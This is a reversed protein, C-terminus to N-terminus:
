YHCDLKDIEESALDFINEKVAERCKELNEGRAYVCSGQQAYGFYEKALNCTEVYEQKDDIGQMSDRLLLATYYAIYLGRYSINFSHKNFDFDRSPYFKDVFETGLSILEERPIGIDVYDKHFRLIDFYAAMHKERKSALTKTCKSFEYDCPFDKNFNIVKMNLRYNEWLKEELGEIGPGINSFFDIDELVPDKKSSYYDTIWSVLHGKFYVGEYNELFSESYDLAKHFLHKNGISEKENWRATVFCMYAQLFDRMESFENKDLDDFSKRFGQSFILKQFESLYADSISSHAELVSELDKEMTDLPATLVHDLGKELNGGFKNAQVIYNMCGYDYEEFYQDASKDPLFCLSGIITQKGLKRNLNYLKMQAYSENAKSGYENTQYRNHHGLEHFFLEYFKKLSINPTLAIDDSSTNKSMYITKNLGYFANFSRPMKSLYVEKYKKALGQNNETLYIHLGDTIGRLSLGEDSFEQKLYLDVDNVFARTTSDYYQVGEKSEFLRKISNHEQVSIKGDADHKAKQGEPELPACSFALFSSLVLGKLLKFMM